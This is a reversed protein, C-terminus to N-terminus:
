SIAESSSKALAQVKNILIRGDFPKTLFESAGAEIAKLRYEDGYRSTMMVIPVGRLAKDRKLRAILQFGDMRPMEADTLIVDPMAAESHEAFKQLIELAELGDAAVFTQWGSDVFLNATVSRISPSDDVILISPKATKSSNRTESQQQLRLRLTFTTGKLPESSISIKSGKHRREIGTKVINMGVGRGSVQSLKEATTLGPLFILEFAEADSMKDACSRSIFGSAVARERLADASIGRGDDAVTIVLHMKDDEPFFVRLDIRGTEPKGLLRRLEPAEIGHAVANRLLHLLPEVLSDLIQTDIELREGAIFLEASKEEEDSTARVTRQLRAALTGFSVMRLRLLKERMEEILCLEADFLTELNAHQAADTQALSFADEITQAQGREVAIQRAADANIELLKAKQFDGNESSYFDINEDGCIESKRPELEAVCKRFFTRSAALDNAIKVLEDIKELSVRVVPRNQAPSNQEREPPTVPSKGLADTAPVIRNEGNDNKIFGTKEVESKTEGGIKKTARSANIDDFDALVREIKKELQASNEQRALAGFCDNAALLAAFIKKEGTIESAAPSDLLDEARHALQALKKLGVIAASGKLTHAARRIELMATAGNQPSQELIKLSEDIRRALEEAELAFIELMEEDIEFNEQNASKEKETAACRANERTNRKIEFREFSEDVFSAVNDSDSFDNAAFRIEALLIELETLKDLLRRSQEDDPPASKAGTFNKLEDQFLACIEAIKESGAILASAKIADIQRLSANLEGYANGTRAGALIGGRITPLSDEAQKIFGQAIEHNM